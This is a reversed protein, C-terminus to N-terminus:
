VLLDVEYEQRVIYGLAGLANDFYSDDTEEAFECRTVEPDEARTWGNLGDVTDGEERWTGRIADALECAALYSEAISSVEVRRTESDAQGTTTSEPDYSSRRVTIAPLLANMPATVPYIRAAVRDTVATVELLRTRVAQVLQVGTPM